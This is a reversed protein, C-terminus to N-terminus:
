FDKLARRTEEYGIDHMEQAKSLDVLSYKRLEKPEIFLDCKKANAIVHSHISLSFTREAIDRLGGLKERKGFHNLHIGIIKECCSRIPKVPLNDLVGGDTYTIGDIEVPPFLVPISSSAIVPKVIEGSSFFRIKGHNLDTAAVILPKKLEEFTDARLNRKLMWLLGNIRVLGSKPIAIEFFSKIRKRALIAYIETPSYGDAYFAGIISGASVGSIIDPYLGHEEMARLAGIHAFGRAGGGSLVIGLKYKKKNVINESMM